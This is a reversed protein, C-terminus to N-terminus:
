AQVSSDKRGYRRFDFNENDGKKQNCNFCAVVYNDPDFQAGGKSIPVVHDITALFKLESKKTIDVEIKLGTKGCYHCVLDHSNLFQLRFEFWKDLEERGLRKLLLVLAAQSKVSPDEVLVQNRRVRLKASM